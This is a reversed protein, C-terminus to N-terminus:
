FEFEVTRKDWKLVNIDLTLWYTVDKPKPLSTIKNIKMQYVTNRVIAYNMAVLGTSSIEEHNIYGYYDLYYHKENEGEGEGEFIQTTDSGFLTVQLQANREGAFTVGLPLKEENTESTVVNGDNDVIEFRFRVGTAYTHLKDAEKAMLGTTPITNESIYIWPYYTGAEPSSKLNIAPTGDPNTNISYSDGTTVLYNIAPQTKGLGNTTNWTPDAIWANSATNGFMTWTEAASTATGNNGHRFVYSINNVNFPTLSNLKITMARGGTEGDNLDYNWEANTGFDLRAVAREVDIPKNDGTVGNTGHTLNYILETGNPQFKSKVEAVTTATKFATITNDSYNHSTMPLVAGAAGCEKVGSFTFTETSPAAGVNMSTITAEAMKDNNAIVLVSLNHRMVKGAFDDIDTIKIKVNYTNDYRNDTPEKETVFNIAGDHTINTAAWLVNDKTHAPESGTQTADADILYVDLKEILIEKELAPDQAQTARTQSFEAPVSFNMTLYYGESQPTQTPDPTAVEENSCAGLALLLPLTYILKKM